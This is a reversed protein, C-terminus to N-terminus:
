VTVRVKLDLQPCRDSDHRSTVPHLAKLLCCYDCHEPRISAPTNLGKAGNTTSMCHCLSNQPRQTFVSIMGAEAIQLCNLWPVSAGSHPTDLPSGLSPERQRKSALYSSAPLKQPETHSSLTPSAHGSSFGFPAMATRRPSLGAPNVGGPGESGCVDEFGLGGAASPGPSSRLSALCGILM